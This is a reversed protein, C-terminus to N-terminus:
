SRRETRGEESEEKASMRWIGGEAEKRVKESGKLKLKAEVQESTTRASTKKKRGQM